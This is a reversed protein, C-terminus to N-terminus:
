IMFDFFRQRNNKAINVNYLALIHNEANLFIYIKTERPFSLLILLNHFLIITKKYFGNKKKSCTSLSLTNIKLLFFVVSIATTTNIQSKACIKKHM